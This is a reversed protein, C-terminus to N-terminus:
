DGLETELDVGDLPGSWITPHLGDDSSGFVNLEFDEFRGALDEPPERQTFDSRYWSDFDLEDVAGDFYQIEILQEEDDVTIVEFSVGQENKYWDGIRPEYRKEAM